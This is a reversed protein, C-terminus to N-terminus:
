WYHKYVTKTKDNAADCYRLLAITAATYLEGALWHSCSPWLVNGTQMVCHGLYVYFYTYGNCYVFICLRCGISVNYAALQICMHKISQPFGELGKASVFVLV